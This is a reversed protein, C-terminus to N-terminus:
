LRRGSGRRSNASREGAMRKFHSVKECSKGKKKCDGCKGATSTPDAWCRLDPFHKVEGACRKCIAPLVRADSPIPARSKSKMKTDRKATSIAQSIQQGVVDDDDAGYLDGSGERVSHVEDDNREGSTTAPGASSEGSLGTNASANATVKRQKAVQSALAAGSPTKRKGIHMDTTNQSTSVIYVGM